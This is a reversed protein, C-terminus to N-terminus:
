QATELSNLATPDVLSTNELYQGPQEAQSKSGGFLYISGTLGLAFLIVLIMNEAKRNSSNNRAM